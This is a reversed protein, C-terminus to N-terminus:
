KVGNKHATLKKKVFCGGTFGDFIYFQRNEDIFSRIPCNPPTAISITFSDLTHLDKLGRFYEPWNTNQNNKQQWEEWSKAQDECYQNLESILATNMILLAAEFRRGAEM